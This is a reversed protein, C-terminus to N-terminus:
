RWTLSPRRSHGSVGLDGVDEGPWRKEL